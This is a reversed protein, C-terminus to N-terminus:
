RGRRFFLFGSLDWLEWVCGCVFDIGSRFTSVFFLLSLLLFSVNKNKTRSDVGSTSVTSGETLNLTSKSNKNATNMAHADPVGSTVSSGVQWVQNVTDANGPVKLKAYLWILGNSEEATLDWVEFSLTSETIPGYSTINYTKVTMAGNSKFALLTQAGLMGSGTPNLAWAVWGDTKAPQAIFAISLSSNTQNHTWHLYSSLQPLDLCQTYVANNTFKQSTCTLSHAPSILLLFCLCLALFVLASSHHSAM